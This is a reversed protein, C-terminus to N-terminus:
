SNRTTLRWTDPSLHRCRAKWRRVPIGPKALMFTYLYNVVWRDDHLHKEFTSLSGVMNFHMHSNDPIDEMIGTVRYYTSDNEIRLMKGM